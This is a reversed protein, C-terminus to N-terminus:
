PPLTVSPSRRHKKAGGEPNQFYLYPSLLYRVFGDSYINPKGGPWWEDFILSQLSEGWFWLARNM